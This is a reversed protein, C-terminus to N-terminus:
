IIPHWTHGGPVGFGGWFASVALGEIESPNAFARLDGSGVESVMGVIGYECVTSSPRFTPAELIAAKLGLDRKFTSEQVFCSTM